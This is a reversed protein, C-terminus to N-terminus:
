KDLILTSKKEEYRNHVKEWISPGLPGTVGDTSPVSMGALGRNKFMNKPLYKALNFGGDKAAGGAGAKAGGAGGGGGSMGLGGGPLGGGSSSAGTIVNKDIGSGAAGGEEGGGLGGGSGGGGLGGGGGGGAGEAIKSGSPTGGKFSDDVAAMDDSPADAIGPTAIGGAVGSGTSGTATAVNKPCISDSPNSKCICYPSTAAFAADSCDGISSALSLPPPTAIAAIDSSSSDKCQLASMLSQGTMMMQMVMAGKNSEFSKCRANNKSAVAQYQAGRTDLANASRLQMGKRDLDDCANYCSKQATSCGKGKLQTAMQMAGGLLSAIRCANASGKAAAAQAGYQSMQQVALGMMMSESSSLGLLSKPDSCAATADTVGDYCDHTAVDFTESSPATAPTTQLSESAIEPAATAGVAGIEDSGSGTQSGCGAYGCTGTGNVSPTVFPSTTPPKTEPVKFAFAQSTFCLSLAFVFIFHVAKTLTM